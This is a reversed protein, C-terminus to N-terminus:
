NATVKGIVKHLNVGRVFLFMIACGLYRIHTWTERTNGVVAAEDDLWRGCCSGNPTYLRVYRISIPYRSMISSCSESGVCSRLYRSPPVVVRDNEVIIGCTENPRHRSEDLEDTPHTDDSLDPSSSFLVSLRVIQM